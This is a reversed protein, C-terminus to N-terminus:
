ISPNTQIVDKYLPPGVIFYPLITCLKMEGNKKNQYKSVNEWLVREAVLKAKENPKQINKNQDFDAWM